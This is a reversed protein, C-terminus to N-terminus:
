SDSQVAVVPSHQRPNKGGGTKALQGLNNKLTAVIQERPQGWVEALKDVARWSDIPRLNAGEVKGFPGDTETLVRAPPMASVLARGKASLFMAPGVSFWCGMDIAKNLQRPTGSFWHLIASPAHEDGLCTLVEDTARRSHVTLVRGGRESVMALIAKFVKTQIAAHQGFGPSGDLGVEGVYRVRELLNEFLPLESSREHALQPHLGLATRIRKRGVALKSSQRWAKPTTTVSLVYIGADHAARAEGEPDPYLDLHCHFDIM